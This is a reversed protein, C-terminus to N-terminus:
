EERTAWRLNILRNDLKNRGVHDITMGVDVSMGRFAVLVIRHAYETKVIGDKRLMVQRYGNVGVSGSLEKGSKNNKLKEVM